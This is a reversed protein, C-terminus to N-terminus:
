NFTFTQVRDALFRGTWINKFTPFIFFCCKQYTAITASTAAIEAIDICTLRKWNIAFLRALNGFRNLAHSKFVCSNSSYSAIIKWIFACPQIGFCNALHM